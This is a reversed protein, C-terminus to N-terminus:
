PLMEMKAVLLAYEDVLPHKWVNQIEKLMTKEFWTKADRGRHFVKWVEDGMVSHASFLSELNHIKDAISVARAAESAQCVQTIYTRKREEWPLSKDESVDQITRVVTESLVQILEHANITTDELVDHTYGAAVVEDSFGYRVLKMAVMSPHIFYPSGDDKRTQQAHALYSILAASEVLGRKKGGFVSVINIEM